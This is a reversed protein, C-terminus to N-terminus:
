MLFNRKGEFYNINLKISIQRRKKFKIKDNKCKSVHTSMIQAVEQRGVGGPLVQEARKNELKTSSFIDFIIFFMTNKRTQSLSLDVSLNRTNNGHM